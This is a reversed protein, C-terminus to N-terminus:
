TAYHPGKELEETIMNALHEFPFPKQIWRLVGMSQLKEIIRASCDGSMVCVPISPYKKRVLEIFRYGNVVPMDLETVILDIPMSKLVAEGKEGNLATVIKCDKLCGHLGVSLANLIDKNDDLVLINKM